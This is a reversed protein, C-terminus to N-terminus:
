GRLWGLGSMMEPVVLDRPQDDEPEKQLLSPGFALMAYSLCNGAIYPRGHRRVVLTGNPVTACFVEGDYPVFEFSPKGNTHRLDARPTRWENVHYQPVTNASTVGRITYPKADKKVISASRGIKLFLEQMDDALRQSVTYYQRQDGLQYGDGLIAGILFRRIVEPPAAKVWVPVHKTYSNGLPRLYTWLQQNSAQFGARTRRWHWPLQQLLAELVAYKPGPQQAIVIQYGHGPTRRYSIACGEAIYWGLFEAFAYPDVDLDASRGVAPIVIREAMEGAWQSVLKIRHGPACYQARVFRVDPEDYGDNRRPSVLMRHDPTVLADLRGRLWMMDGRYPKRILHKPQQYELEDLELDVTALEHDFTVDPWATWGTKTLVESEADFCDMPHDYFGDKKARRTNPSRSANVAREDWVYGAEFAEVLIPADREYSKQIVAFRPNVQFAPAGGSVLRRMYGAVAQIAANRKDPHNAGKVTHREVDIGYGKLVDAASRNTGQSNMATGAPDGTSKVEIPNPCWDQRIRLMTPVFDELFMNEGMVGGLIHLGGLPTFQLFVVAPHSHGYDWAELLPLEPNMEVEREHLSRNFYGAYVPKGEASLGRLGLVFRRHQVSGAPFAAEAAKIYAEGMVERNDHLATHIYRYDKSGDDRRGDTPFEDVLWHSYSPPNPTLIIQQPYGPQSIRLKLAEWIDRPIEEPQDIYIGGLTKGAFKAFRSEDESARLGHIYVISPKDKEKTRIEYYQEQANWPGLFKAPCLHLFLPRLQSKTSRDTWRSMMWQMGPHHRAQTIVRLVAVTSKGTRIAGELDVYRETAEWLDTQPDNLSYQKGM